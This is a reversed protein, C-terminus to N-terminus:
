NCAINLVFQQSGPPCADKTMWFRISHPSVVYLAMMQQGGARHAAALTKGLWIKAEERTHQQTCCLPM